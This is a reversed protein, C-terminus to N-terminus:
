EGNYEVVNNETEWLRVTLKYNQDIRARLLNYCVIAINEASPKLDKFEPCDL